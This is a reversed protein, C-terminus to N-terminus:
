SGAEGAAGARDASGVPALRIEIRRNKLRGEPTDNSAVPHFEGFSVVRMRTPDVGKAAFLRVVEAAREAALEWNSPFRSNPKVPVNDTHGQVEIEHPLKLLQRAVKELVERGAPNLQTSGSAFLIDQVVNLRLGERLQEIQIQGASVEAELDDVLDTYTGRLKTLEENREALETERQKLTSSLDAETRRLREVNQELTERKQRLDELQELLAVRERDLSQTTARAKTLEESLRDREGVVEQYTGRSVCGLGTLLAVALLASARRCSPTPSRMM